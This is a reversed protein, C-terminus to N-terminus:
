SMAELQDQAEVDGNEVVVTEDEIVVGDEDHFQDRWDEEPYTGEVVAAQDEAEADRDDDGVAEDEIVVGDEDHYTIEGGASSVAFVPVVTKVEALRDTQDPPPVKARALFTEDRFFLAQQGRIPARGAALIIVEGADIIEDSKKDRNAGRLRMAEDPTLLPRSIEHYSKTFSKAFAGHRAGSISINETVATKVGCNDSIWRGTEIRNPAFAVRIHCNSIITENRGYIDQLQAIDQMILYAKIGYGAIFALQDKFVDLRRFSPFEDLMMLLRHKHPAVQRANEFKPKVQMLGTLIQNLLLRMLPQMREKDPPLVILYLTVPHEHDMLDSIRFDSVSVNAAVLPDRYLALHSMATSLVGSRETDSRNLMDQAAGAVTDHRVGNSHRNEVMEKYLAEIRRAAEEDGEGPRSLALVVEPLSVQRGQGKLSYYLHIIVGTLFAHATKSWHDEMGKGSPDVLMTVITQVEGVEHLTGFRVEALPNFRVSGEVAAPEFRLVKNKAYRQRWGSTLAWLEGKLDNVIVSHLWTFLTPLVLAVGKGSRTPALAAVHSPGDDLLYRLDGSPTPFAGVVVSSGIRDSPVFLGAEEIDEATAWRATGHLNEHKKPSRILQGVLICYTLLGIFALVLFVILANNFTEPASRQFRLYWDAWSFPGYLGFVGPEGLMARSHISVKSALWQTTISSLVIVYAVYLLFGGFQWGKVSGRKAEEIKM